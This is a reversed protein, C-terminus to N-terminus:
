NATSIIYHERIIINDNALVIFYDKELNWYYTLKVYKANANDEPITFTEDM